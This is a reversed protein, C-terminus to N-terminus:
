GRRTIHIVRGGWLDFRSLRGPAEPFFRFEIGGAPVEESGILRGDVWDLSHFQVGKPGTLKIVTRASTPSIMATGVVEFKPRGGLSDGISKWDNFFEIQSAEPLAPNFLALTRVAGITLTDAAGAAVGNLRLQEAIAMSDAGALASMGDQTRATLWVTEEPSDDLRGEVQVGPEVTVGGIWESTRPVAVHPPPMELQPGFLIRTVFLPVVERYGRAGERSNSLFIITAHEDVLRRMDTNFGGIDGAHLIVTTNRQSRVVQWGGAYRSNSGTAPGPEFFQRTAATDLVTNARLAQEWNWLDGTTSVVSGAGTVKPLPGTPYLPPDAEAGSYSPTQLAGAWREPEDSFGTARMGAPVFIDARVVDNFNRGSAKEIIAALLNYGPSSYMHRAGPEFALPYSLAERVMSDTSVSDFLGGRPLYPLGSTHHILQEITIGRKDAPAGPFWAALSDSTHLKGQSQLKYIEAATFQKSLSGLLYPTLTDAHVGSGRNAIGYGRHLIVQGDKEVLLTGEVGQAQLATMFSDIRAGLPGVGWSGAGVNNSGRDASDRTQSMSEAAAPRALANQAAGLGLCFLFIATTKMGWTQGVPM